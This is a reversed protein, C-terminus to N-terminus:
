GIPQISVDAASELAANAAATNEQLTKLVWVIQLANKFAYVHAGKM